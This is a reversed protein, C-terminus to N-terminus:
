RKAMTSKWCEVMEADFHTGANKCIYDMAEHATAPRRYPRIGTMADFVDVIALM